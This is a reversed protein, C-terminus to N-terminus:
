QSEAPPMRSIQSTKGQQVERRFGVAWYDQVSFIGYVDRAAREVSAPDELDGQVIEVGQASLQKAAYGNPSRTLARLKWGDPLPHRIAAGGQRGTAGTVLITKDGNRV